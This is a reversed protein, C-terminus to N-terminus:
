NNKKKKWSNIFGVVNPNSLMEHNKVILAAPFDDGMEIAWQYDNGYNVNNQGEWGAVGGDYMGMGAAEAAKKFQDFDFDYVRAQSMPINIVREKKQIGAMEQMREKENLTKKM